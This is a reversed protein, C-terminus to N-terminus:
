QVSTMLASLKLTKPVGNQSYEIMAKIIKFRGMKEIREKQFLPIGEPVTYDYKETTIEIHRKFGKNLPSISKIVSQFFEGGITEPDGSVNQPIEDFPRSMITELLENAYNTAFMEDITISVDSATTGFITFLPILGLAM